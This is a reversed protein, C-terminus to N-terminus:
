FNPQISNAFRWQWSHVYKMLLPNIRGRRLTSGSCAHIYLSICGYAYIYIYICVCISIIKCTYENYNKYTCCM